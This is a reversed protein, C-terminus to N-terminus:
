SFFNGYEELNNFKKLELRSVAGYAVARGFKDKGIYNYIGADTYM